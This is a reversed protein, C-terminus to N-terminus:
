NADLQYLKYLQNSGQLGQIFSAGKSANMIIFRVLDRSIDTRKGIGFESFNDVLQFGEQQMNREIRHPGSCRLFIRSRLLLGLIPNGSYSWGQSTGTQKQPQFVRSVFLAAGLIMVMMDHEDSKGTTPLRWTVSASSLDSLAVGPHSTIRTNRKLKSHSQIASKLRLLGPAPIKRVHFFHPAHIVYMPINM